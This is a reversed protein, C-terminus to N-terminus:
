FATYGGDVSVVSGFMFSSDESALFVAAKAIEEPKGMRRAPVMGVFGALGGSKDAELATELLPTEVIGPCIVNSRIGKPGFEVAIQKALGVVAHKSATYAAGGGGGILGAASAISVIAGSGKAVMGPLVHKALLFHATVNIAMVRSWEDLSVEIPGKMYDFIGANNILIDVGGFRAQAAEVLAAVQAPDGLDHDSTELRDSAQAKRLDALRDARVDNTFVTAGEELFAEVIAKGMGAGGGTVLATKGKLKM